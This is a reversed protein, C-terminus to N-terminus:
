TTGTRINPPQTDTFTNTHINNDDDDIETISPLCKIHICRDYQVIPDISPHTGTLM